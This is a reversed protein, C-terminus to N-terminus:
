ATSPSHGIPVAFRLVHVSWKRFIDLAEARAEHVALGIRFFGRPVVYPKGSDDMLTDALSPAFCKCCYCRDFKRNLYAAHVKLTDFFTLCRQRFEPCAPPQAAAAARERKLARQAIQLEAKAEAEVVRKAQFHQLATAAAESAKQLAVRLREEAARAAAHAAQADQLDRHAALHAKNATAETQIAKSLPDVTPHPVAPPSAASIQPPTQQM